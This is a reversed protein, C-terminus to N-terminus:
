TRTYQTVTANAAYVCRNKPNSSSLSVSYYINALWAVNPEHKASQHQICAQSQLTSINMTRVHKICAKKHVASFYIIFYASSFSLGTNREHGLCKYNLLDIGVATNRDIQSLKRIKIWSYSRGYKRYSTTMKRTFTPMRPQHTEASGCLRLM